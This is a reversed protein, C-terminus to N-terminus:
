SYYKTQIPIMLAGVGELHACIILTDRESDETLRVTKTDFTAKYMYSQFINM